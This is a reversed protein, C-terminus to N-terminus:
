GRNRRRSLRAVRNRKKRALIYKLRFKKTHQKSRKGGRTPRDVYQGIVGLMRMVDQMLKNQM